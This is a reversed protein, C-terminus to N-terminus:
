GRWVYRNEVCPGASPPKTRGGRQKAGLQALTECFFRAHWGFSVCHNTDSLLIEPWSTVESTLDIVWLDPNPMQRLSRWFHDHLWFELVLTIRKDHRMSNSRFINVSFASSGFPGNHRWRHYWVLDFICCYPLSVGCYHIFVIKSANPNLNYWKHQLFLLKLMRWLSIISSTVHSVQDWIVQMLFGLYVFHSYEPAQYNRFTKDEQSLNGIM